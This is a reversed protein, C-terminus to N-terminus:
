YLKQRKNMRIMESFGLNIALANVAQAIRKAKTADTKASEIWNSFYRQHGKPLTKFYELAAPEDELCIMFTECLPKVQTDLEMQVAVSEGLQKSIGKRMEANIAIIFHGDGMPITSIWEYSFSDLKGKVRFATKVGPNIQDSVEIPIEIYTWGTKEGQQHFRKLIAKFEIM